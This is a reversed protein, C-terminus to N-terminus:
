EVGATEDNQAVADRPRLVPEPAVNAKSVGGVRM